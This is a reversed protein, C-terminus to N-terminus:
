SAHRLRHHAQLLAAEFAVAPSASRAAAALLPATHDETSPQRELRPMLGLVRHFITDLETRELALAAILQRDLDAGVDPAEAAALRAEIEDLDERWGELTTQWGRAPDLWGAARGLAQAHM